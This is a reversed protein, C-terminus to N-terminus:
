LSFITSFNISKSGILNNEKITLGVLLPDVMHVLVNDVSGVFIWETGEQKMKDLLGNKKLAKYICGNGDSAEKIEFKKNIMVKGDENLLPMNDQVFFVIKDKPYDFYNHEEFFDRTVQDNETSTM